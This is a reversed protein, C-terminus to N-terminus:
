KTAKTTTTTKKTEKNEKYRMDPTGDKKKPGATQMVTTKKENYRKDPEGSKTVHTTKKTATQAYLMGSHLMLVAAVLFFIKRM